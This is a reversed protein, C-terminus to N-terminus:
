QVVVNSAPQLYQILGGRKRYATTLSTQDTIQGGKLSIERDLELRAIWLINTNQVKYLKLLLRTLEVMYKIKGGLFISAVAFM